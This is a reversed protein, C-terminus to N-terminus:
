GTLLNIMKRLSLQLALLNDLLLFESAVVSHAPLSQTAFWGSGAISVHLAM